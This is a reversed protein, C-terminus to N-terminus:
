RLKNSILIRPDFYDFSLTAIGERGIVVERERTKRALVKQHEVWIGHKVLASDISEHLKHLVM